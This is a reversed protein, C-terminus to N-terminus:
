RMWILGRNDAPSTGRYICLNTDDQLNLFYSDITSTVGTQWLLGLNNSPGTGRYVALNGDSGLYAFYNGVVGTTGSQWLLSIINDPDSGSYLCLNGNTQLQLFCSRSLSSIYQGERIFGGSQIRTRNNQITKNFDITSGAYFSITKDDDLAVFLGKQIYNSIDNGVSISYFLGLNNWPSTGRYIKLYGDNGITMFHKGNYTSNTDVSNLQWIKNSTSGPAGDYMVFNGNSELTGWCNRSPSTIYEGTALYNGDFCNLFKSEFASGVSQENKAPIIGRFATQINAANIINQANTTWGQGSIKTNNIDVNNISYVEGSSRIKNVFNTNYYNNQFTNDHNPLNVAYLAVGANNVVNNQVTKYCSGNDLYLAGNSAGFDAYGQYKSVPLNFIYNDHINTNPIRGLTYVGGSDDLATMINHIRNFRVELNTAGYVDKDDWVWGVSIGGNSINQIENYEITLYRPFTAFIGFADRYDLGIDTIYNNSITDNRSSAHTRGDYWYEGAGIYIGGGACSDVLNGRIINGESEFSSRIGIAGAFKIKNGEFLINKSYQLTIMGPVSEWSESHNYFKGTDNNEIVYNGQASSYGHEGPALWNSYKFELGSFQINHVYSYTFLQFDQIRAYTDPAGTQTANTIYLRVYRSTFNVIRGTEADTQRLKASDTANSITEVDTWTSGNASTQIKFDKTDVLSTDGNKSAHKVLYRTINYSAGLDVKLWKAGANQAYWRTNTVGDIAKSPETGSVYSSATATKNLAVNTATGSINIIKELTPIIVEVTSIDEGTRPKYYLTDNTKDLYWEGETDIFSYSNEWYYGTNMQWHHSYGWYMTQSMLNVTATLGNISYSYVKAKNHAWHSIWNFEVSPEAAWSGIDSSNISFPPVIPQSVGSSNFPSNLINFFAGGTKADNLNPYRARTGRIENVYIQLFERSGVNAKYINKSADHLSWGTVKYESTIIPNESNYAKYIISYGNTGSDSTTFDITSSLNYKGGRLYVYIDGTMNTNILRITDRARTITQFASSISLGNNSDVGNASDVYYIAQTVASVIKDSIIGSQLVSFIFVLSFVVKFSRKLKSLFNEKKM